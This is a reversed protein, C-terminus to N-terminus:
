RMWTIYQSFWNAPPEARTPGVTVGGSDSPFVCLTMDGDMTIHRWTGLTDTIRINVGCHRCKFLLEGAPGRCSM